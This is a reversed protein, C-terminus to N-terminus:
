YMPLLPRKPRRIWGETDYSADAETIGLRRAEDIGEDFTLGRQLAGIVVNSTSNLVGTFGLVKVGPLNNRVMNFVPAGDMCTSEFRFELGLQRAEESLQHYAHAIPGKNATVVHAGCRFAQRIHTTAPEASAPELTTLEVAIEPRARDFFEDISKAAPGFQPAISLGQDNYATGHRATHIGVIRFPYVSRKKDLLRTFAQGVKGFGILALRM